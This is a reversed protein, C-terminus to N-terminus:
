YLKKIFDGLIQMEDRARLTAFKFHFCTKRFLTRLSSRTYDVLRGHVTSIMRNCVMM